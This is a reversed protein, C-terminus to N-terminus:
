LTQVYDYILQIEADSIEDAPRAPMYENRAGYNTGGNGERVKEIYEGIPEPRIDVEVVGGAADLGHCNRCYDLYLGEGDTPQPFSDLYELILALEDDSLTDQTFQPMAQNEFEISARGNRVVWEAFGHHSHRIEYAITTGEAMTGHCASCMSVFLEEGTMMPEGTDGTDTDGTDGATSGTDDSPCGTGVLTTLSVLVLCTLRHSM